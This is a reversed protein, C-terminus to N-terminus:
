ATCADPRAHWLAAVGLGGAATSASRWAQCRRRRARAGPGRRAAAGESEISSAAAALGAHDRARLAHNAAESILAAQHEQAASAASQLLQRELELVLQAQAEHHQRHRAAREPRDEDAKAARLADARRCRAADAEARAAAVLADLREQRALAEDQPCGPGIRSRAQELQRLLWESTARPDLAPDAPM